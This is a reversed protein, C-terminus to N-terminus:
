AESQVVHQANWLTRAIVHKLEYKPLQFPTHCETLRLVSSMSGNEEPM